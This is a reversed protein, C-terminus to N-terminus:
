RWFTKNKEFKVKMTLTDYTNLKIMERYAPFALVPGNLFKFKLQRMSIEAEMELFIKVGLVLNVNDHIDLVLTYIEPM